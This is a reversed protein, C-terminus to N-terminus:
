LDEPRELSGRRLGIALVAATILVWLQLVGGVVQQQVDPSFFDSDAYSFIAVAALAAGVGGLVSWWRPLLGARISGYAAGGLAAAVGLGLVPVALITSVFMGKTVEPSTAAVSDALTTYIVHIFIFYGAALFGGTAVLTAAVTEGRRHLRRAFAVVFAALAAAGLTGLPASLRIDYAVEQFHTSMSAATDHPAPADGLGSLGMATFLFAIVGLLPVVYRGASRRRDDGGKNVHATPDRRTRSRTTQISNM